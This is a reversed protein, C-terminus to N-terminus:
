IRVEANRPRFFLSWFKDPGIVRSIERLISVSKNDQHEDVRRSEGDGRCGAAKTSSEINLCRRLFGLRVGQKPNMEMKFGRVWPEVLVSSNYAFRGIRFSCALEYSAPPGSNM